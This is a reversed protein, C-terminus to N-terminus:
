SRHDKLPKRRRRGGLQDLKVLIEAYLIENWSDPVGPLCWHSCDQYLLPSKSEEASLKQKRYISPHADKRYDTLRTINLYTVPTKMGSLVRELIEMKLMYPTLYTENKIPETEDDCAGGANWQGGSFHSPSYGRFFVLSKKPNVNKDVWRGWTTLAKRFAEDVDLKPHVNSGEQYYDEGKSTKEHTWWHGTNFVLIDAGKYQESSKGVLDLRLTEKKTGNNETVEWEQVLFPLAFFEVTCNYDKFVFSYEAEWRFQHRGHAEFVQSEDKVSGKLICVLSEWMNRNLSDGVFVLRKGRIMELLKGGNLRPLSCKKPKWKLKQFDVDPRGNSICNFQEDILNCSGPKYLPYSDDKVWDGEFFECSKLSEIVKRLSSKRRQKRMQSASSNVALVESLPAKRAGHKDLDRATVDTKNDPCSINEKAHDTKFQFTNDTATPDTTGNAIPSEFTVNKTVATLNEPAPTPLTTFNSDLTSAPSNPSNSVTINPLIYSSISPAIAVTIPSPSFALFVTLAVFTVVFAYVFTSTKRPKVASFFNKIEVTVSSFASVGHIPMHKVTDSAM